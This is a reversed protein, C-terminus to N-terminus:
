AWLLALKLRFGPLVDGGDLEEPRDLELPEAAPRYIWVKKAAPDLLWGLRVGNEIYEAMKRMLDSLPDSTSRIEVVFDPALPPFKARQEDSLENWRERAIWAGDPSRKAGDPLRFGTSSDFALGTGDALSWNVLQATVLANRYGTEGGAPPKIILDGDRTSEIRLDRNRQCFDYFDDDSLREILLGMHLVVSEAAPLQETSM